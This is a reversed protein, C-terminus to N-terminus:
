AGQGLQLRRTRTQRTEWADSGTAAIRHCSFLVRISVSFVSLVSDARNSEPRTRTKRTWGHGIGRGFDAGAALAGGRRLTDRGARGPRAGTRRHRAAVGPGHRDGTAVAPGIAGPPGPVAVGGALCQLRRLFGSGAGSGDPQRGPLLGADPEGALFGAQG